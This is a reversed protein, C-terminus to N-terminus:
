RGGAASSRSARAFRWGRWGACRAETKYPCDFKSLIQEPVVIHDRRRADILDKFDAFNVLVIHNIPMGAYRPVTQM